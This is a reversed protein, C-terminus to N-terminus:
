HLYETVNDFVYNEMWVYADEHGPQNFLVMLVIWKLDEVDVDEDELAMVRDIVLERTAPSLIGGQELHLLFGRCQADLRTLEQDSYLRISRDDALVLGETQRQAMDDMWAFAKNIGSLPFGAELLEKQAFDRDSHAAKDHERDEDLFTQFLYVLVDLVNEKM